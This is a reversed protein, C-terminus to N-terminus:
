LVVGSSRFHTLLLYIRGIYTVFNGLNALLVGKDLDPVIQPHGVENRTIRSFQFMTGIVVDLDHGLVGDTPKNKCGAYSKQFEDFKRSIMKGNIRSAFREKNTPDSIADAYSHILTNIARESAAGLMFAGALLAEARVCTIAEVVFRIIVPDCDPVRERIVDPFREIEFPLAQGPVPEGTEIGEKMQQLMKKLPGDKGGLVIKGTNFVSVFALQRGNQVTFKTCHQEDTEEVPLKQRELFSKVAQTTKPEGVTM